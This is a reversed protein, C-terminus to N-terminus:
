KFCDLEKYTAHFDWKSHDTYKQYNEPIQFGFHEALAVANQLRQHTLNYLSELPLNDTPFVQLQKAIECADNLMDTLVYTVAWQTEPQIGDPVCGYVEVFNNTWNGAEASEPLKYFALYTLGLCIVLL